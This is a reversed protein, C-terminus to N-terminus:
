HRAKCAAVKAADGGQYDDSASTGYRRQLIEVMVEAHARTNAALTFDVLHTVGQYGKKLIEKWETGLNYSEPPFELTTLAVDARSLALHRDPAFSFGASSAFKSVAGSELARIVDPGRTSGARAAAAIIAAAADAPADEGGQLVGGHYGPSYNHIWERMPLTPLTPVSGLASVSITGRSAADGALAVLDPSGTGWTSGMVMPKFTSLKTTPTDVYKGELRQLDTLISSVQDAQGYCMVVHCGLQKLTQIPEILNIPGTTPDYGAIRRTTIGHKNAAGAFLLDVGPYISKDFLLGATSFDRDERAYAM